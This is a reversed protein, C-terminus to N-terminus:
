RRAYERVQIPFQEHDFSRVEALRFGEALGPIEVADPTGYTVVMVRRPAERVARELEDGGTCRVQGTIIQGDDTVPEDCFQKHLEFPQDLQVDLSGYDILLGLQLIPDGPGRREDIFRAAERYQPKPSEVHARLTGVALGALLLAAAPVAIRRPSITVLLGLLLCFAPLSGLLTRPAYVSTFPISYLAAGLPAGLALAAPLGLRRETALRARAVLGGVLALAIGAAVLLLVPWGPLERLGVYPNGAFAVGLARLFYSVTLPNLSEIANQFGATRDDLFSPLWPLLGLAVAACAIALERIRERHSWAAWGVAAALPFLATYHSYLAACAALAFAAWRWAGGRELAALLALGCLVVFLAMPSYARAEVSYFAAFPSLALIAAGALAAPRGVTRVGLAYVAPVTAVGAILVPIRIWVQPDGAKAGLWALVFYLPPSIELPGSVGDLMDGFAPRTAIEYTFLEDGFVSEDLGPLRM